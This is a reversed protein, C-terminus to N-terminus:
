PVSREVWAGGVVYGKRPEFCSGVGRPPKWFKPATKLSRIEPEKNTKSVAVNPIIRIRSAIM